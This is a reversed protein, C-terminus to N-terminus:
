KDNYMSIIKKKLPSDSVYKVCGIIDNQEKIISNLISPVVSTENDKLEEKSETAMIDTSGYEVGKRTLEMISGSKTNILDILSVAGKLTDYGLWKISESVKKKDLKDIQEALDNIKNILVQVSEKNPIRTVTPRDVLQDIRTKPVASIIIESKRPTYESEVCTVPIVDGVKLFQLKPGIKLGIGCYDTNLIALNDSVIQSVVCGHITEYRDYTIGHIVCAVTIKFYGGVREFDSIVRGVVIDTISQVFCRKFVSGVYREELIHKYTNIPNETYIVAPDNTLIQEHHIRQVIM